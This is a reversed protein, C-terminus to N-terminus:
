KVLVGPTALTPHVHTDGTNTLLGTEVPIREGSQAKFDVKNLDVVIPTLHNPSVLWYKLNTQDRVAMWQTYSGTKQAGRPVEVNHLIQLATAMASESSTLSPTTSVLYAAKVFRSTSLYDGPLGANKTTREENQVKLNDLQKDYTPSNTMVGTATVQDFFQPRGDKLEVVLSKGSKETIIWHLLMDDGKYNSLFISLKSILAKAEEVTAANELVYEVVSVNSLGRTGSQLTKATQTEDQWLTAVTLGKTNMGDTYAALDFGDVLVCDFKSTWTLPDFSGKTFKVNPDTVVTGHQRFCIKSALDAPYDLTRGSVVIGATRNLVISTCAHAPIFLCVLFVFASFLAYRGNHM